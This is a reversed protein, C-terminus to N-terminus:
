LTLMPPTLIPRPPMRRTGFHLPHAYPVGTGFIGVLTSGPGALIQEIHDPSQQDILSSLLRGTLLLLPRNRDKKAKRESWRTGWAQGETLFQEAARSRLQSFASRLALEAAQDLATTAARQFAAADFQISATLEM